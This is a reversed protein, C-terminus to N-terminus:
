LAKAACSFGRFLASWTPFKEIERLWHFTNGKQGVLITRKGAGLAFGLETHVGGSNDSAIGDADIIVVDAKWLELLNKEAIERAFTDFDQAERRPREEIWIWTSIIEHDHLMLWVAARRLVFRQRFGSALYVRMAIGSGCTEKAPALAKRIPQGLQLM